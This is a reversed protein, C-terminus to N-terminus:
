SIESKESWTGRTSTIERIPFCKVNEQSQDAIKTITEDNAM